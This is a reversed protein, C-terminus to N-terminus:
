ERTTCPGGSSVREEDESAVAHRLFQLASGPDLFHALKRMLGFTQSQSCVFRCGTKMDGDKLGVNMFFAGKLLSAM